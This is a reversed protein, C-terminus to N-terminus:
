TFSNCFTQAATSGQRLFIFCGEVAAKLIRDLDQREDSSFRGLVYSAGDYGQPKGVGLRLRHFEPTGLMQQLSKLGNHGANGGGKKLKMRGFPLDLEDHIVLIEGPPVHYYGAIHQVAEGSRNMYTLPTTIFLSQGAIERPASSTFSARWLHYRDKQGSLRSLVAYKEAERLLVEVALFGFNHRTEEYERGPNGLGAILGLFAM